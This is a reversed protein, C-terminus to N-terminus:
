LPSLLYGQAQDCKLSILEDKPKQREVGEAVTVLGMSHALSISAKVVEKQCEIV